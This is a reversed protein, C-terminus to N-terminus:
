EIGRTLYDAEADGIEKTSKWVLDDFAKPFYERIAEVVDRIADWNAGPCEGNLDQVAALLKTTVGNVLCEDYGEPDHAAWSM